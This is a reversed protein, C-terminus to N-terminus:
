VRRAQQVLLDVEGDALTARLSDGAQVQAVSSVTKGQGDALWAYGRRLVVRPDLLDLVRQSQALAEHAQRVRSHLSGTLRPQQLALATRRQQLQSRLAHTMQQASRALRLQQRGVLQSPRGLRSAAQDLRQARLDIARDAADRLRDGMGQLVSLWIERPQAVLEAAATPTPARLDAVFDAITFDTEHGVGSVVPVPSRAICRALQEDNFAWLDEISGGGRVLLIVDIARPAAQAYLGDLARVLDAPAQEGQVLAPALLVPVHPLRRRLASVVDHLAAAQLSTVVGIGRPLAPLRRKREADFLGEAELRAKRQLFQEFLAGQGARQLSEVVLQLDGRAEYVGLRGRLEVLDGDRPSFDVLAAARRFMACRIQGQPDKIQFYCHGSSARSFGSIEGRVAVPNFGHDLAGAIARCLAGVEWISPALGPRLVDHLPM